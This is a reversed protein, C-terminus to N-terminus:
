APHAEPKNGHQEKDLDMSELLDLLIHSTPQQTLFIAWWNGAKQKEKRLHERWEQLKTVQEATLKVAITVTPPLTPKPKGSFGQAKAISWARNILQTHELNAPNCNVNFRQFADMMAQNADCFDHTHCIMSSGHAREWVNRRDIEALQAPELQERLVIAFETALTEAVPLPTRKAADEAAQKQAAALSEALLKDVIPKGRTVYDAWERDSVYVKDIRYIGLADQRVDANYTLLLEADAHNDLLWLRSSDGLIRTVQFKELM